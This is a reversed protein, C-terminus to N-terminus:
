PNDMDRGGQVVNAIRCLNHPSAGHVGLRRYPPYILRFSIDNRLEPLEQLVEAQIVEHGLENLVLDVGARRVRDQGEILIAKPACPRPLDDVVSTPRPQAIEAPCPVFNGLLFTEDPHLVVTQLGAEGDSIVDVNSGASQRRM